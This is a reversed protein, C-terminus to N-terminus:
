SLEIWTNFGSLCDRFSTYVVGVFSYINGRPHLAILNSFGVIKALVDGAKLATPGLGVVGEVTTFLARQKWYPSPVPFSTELDLEEYRMPVGQRDLGSQLKEAVCSRIERECKMATNFGWQRFLDVATPLNRGLPTIVSQPDLSCAIMKIADHGTRKEFALVRDICEFISPRHLEEGVEIVPGSLLAGHLFLNRTNEDPTDFKSALKPAIEASSKPLM